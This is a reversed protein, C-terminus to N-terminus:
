SLIAGTLMSMNKRRQCLRRSRHAERSTKWRSSRNKALTEGVSMRWGAKDRHEDTSSNCNEAPWTYWEKAAPKGSLTLFGNGTGLVM